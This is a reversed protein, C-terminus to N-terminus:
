VSVPQLATGAEPETVTLGFAVAPTILPVEGSQGPTVAVYVLLPFVPPVQLLLLLAIATTSTDVPM